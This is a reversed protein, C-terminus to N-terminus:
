RRFRARDERKRSSRRGAESAPAAARRRRNVFSPFLAAATSARLALRPARASGTERVRRRAPRRQAEPTRAARTEAFSRARASSVQACPWPGRCSASIGRLACIRCERALGAQASLAAACLDDASFPNELRAKLLQKQLHSHGGITRIGSQETQGGHQKRRAEVLRAVSCRMDRDDARAGRCRARHAVRCM